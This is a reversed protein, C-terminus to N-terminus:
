STKDKANKNSYRSNFNFLKIYDYSLWQFLDKKLPKTIIDDFQEVLHFGDHIKKVWRM